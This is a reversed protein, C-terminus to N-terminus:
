PRNKVARGIADGFEDVKMATLFRTILRNKERGARARTDNRPMTFNGVGSSEASIM